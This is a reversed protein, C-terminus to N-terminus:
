GIVPKAVQSVMAGLLFDVSQGVKTLVDYALIPTALRWLERVM